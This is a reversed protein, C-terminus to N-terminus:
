QPPQQQQQYKWLYPSASMQLVKDTEQIKERVAELQTKLRQTEGTLERREKLLAKTEEDAPQRRAEEVEQTLAQVEAEKKRLDERLEDIRAWEAALPSQAAAIRDRLNNIKSQNQMVQKQAEEKLKKEQRLEDKLRRVEEMHTRRLENLDNDFKQVRELGKGQLKAVKRLTENQERLDKIRLRREALENQVAQLEMLGQNEHLKKLLRQNERRAKENERVVPKDYFENRQAVTSSVHEGKQQLKRDIEQNLALLQERLADNKAQLQEITAPDEETSAM